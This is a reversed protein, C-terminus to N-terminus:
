ADPFPATPPTFNSTYRAVGQTIRVEDMYGAFFEGGTARQGLLPATNSTVSATITSSTADLVGNAWLKFNNGERTLAVHHWLNTALTTAGTTLGAGVNDYFFQLKSSAYRFSIGNSTSSRQSYLNNDAASATAYIFMEITLDSVGFAYQGATGIALNGTNFLISSSGFKSQATSIQVGGFATVTKPSPSSDVITTSGNTGDGHLLLSVNAFDPDTPGTAAFQYPNIYIISM